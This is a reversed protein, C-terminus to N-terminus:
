VTSKKTKKFVQWGYIGNSKLIIKHDASEITAYYSTQDDAAMEFLDTIWYKNYDNKLSASLSIPLQSSLLNRSLAIREGDHSYYAFMVQGNQRFIAKSFDKVSEWRVDTANVFEKKFANQAKASVEEVNNAFVSSMATVVVLALTLIRKKM